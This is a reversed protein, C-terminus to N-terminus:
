ILRTTIRESLEAPQRCDLMVPPVLPRAPRLPEVVPAAADPEPAPALAPAVEAPTPEAAELPVAPPELPLAEAELLPVPLPPAAVV